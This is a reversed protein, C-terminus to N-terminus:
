IDDDTSTDKIEESFREFEDIAEESSKAKWRLWHRTELAVESLAQVMRKHLYKTPQSSITYALCLTGAISKTIGTSAAVRSLDDDVCHPVIITRSQGIPRFNIALLSSVLHITTLSLSPILDSYRDRTASLSQVSTWELMDMAAIHISLATFTDTSARPSCKGGIHSVASSFEPIWGIRLATNTGQKYRGARYRKLITPDSLLLTLDSSPILAIDPPLSTNPTHNIPPVLRLKPSTGAQNQDIPEGTQGKDPKKAMQTTM